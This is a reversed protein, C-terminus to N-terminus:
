ATLILKGLRTCRLRYTRGNHRIAVEHHGMLIRSSDLTLVDSQSESSKMNGSRQREDDPDPISVGFTVPDSNMTALGKQMAPPFTADDYNLITRILLGM